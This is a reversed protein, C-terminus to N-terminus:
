FFAIKFKSSYMQVKRDRKNLNVFVNGVYVCVCVYVCMRVHMRTDHICM